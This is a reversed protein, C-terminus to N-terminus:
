ADAKEREVPSHQEEPTPQAPTRYGSAREENWADDPHSVGEREVPNSAPCSVSWIHESVFAVPLCLFNRLAEADERRSFRLAKSSDHTWGCAPHWWMPSTWDFGARTRVRREILWGAEEGPDTM